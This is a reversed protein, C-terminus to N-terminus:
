EEVCRERVTISKTENNNFQERITSKNDLNQSSNDLQHSLHWPAWFFRNYGVTFIMRVYHCLVDVDVM